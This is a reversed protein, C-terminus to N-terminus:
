IPCLGQLKRIYSAYKKKGIVECGGSGFRTVRLISATYEESGDCYVIRYM